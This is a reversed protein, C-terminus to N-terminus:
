LQFILIFHHNVTTSWWKKHILKSTSVMSRVLIDKEILDGKELGNILSNLLNSGTITEITLKFICLM